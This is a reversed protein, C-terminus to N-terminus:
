KKRLDNFLEIKRNAILNITTNCYGTDYLPQLINETCILLSTNKISQNNILYNCNVKNRKLIIRNPIDKNNNYILATQITPIGISTFINNACYFEKSPGFAIINRVNKLFFSNNVIRIKDVPTTKKEISFVIMNNPSDLTGRFVNNEISVNNIGNTNICANCLPHIYVVNNTFNLRKINSVKVLNALAGSLESEINCNIINNKINFNIDVSNDITRGDVVTDDYYCHLLGFYHSREHVRPNEQGLNEVFNNYFNVVGKYNQRFTVNGLGNPNSGTHDFNLARSRLGNIRNSHIDWVWDSEIDDQFAEILYQGGNSISNFSFTLNICRDIRAIEDYIDKFVCNKISVEKVDYKHPRQEVFDWQSDSITIANNSANGNGVNKFTCNDIIIKETATLFLGDTAFNTFKCNTIAANKVGRVVVSIFNKCYGTISDSNGDFHVNDLIAYDSLTCKILKGHSDSCFFESSGLGGNPKTWLTKITANGIGKILVSKNFVDLTYIRYVKDKLDIRHFIDLTRQLASTDDHQGNGIAGFWEPFAEKVNWNGDIKLDTGFIKYAGTVIKTNQGTLHKYGSIYGGDFQLVCDNPITLDETLTYSHKIVYVTNPQTLKKILADGKKLIIIPLKSYNDNTEIPFGIDNNSHGKSTTIFFCLLFM